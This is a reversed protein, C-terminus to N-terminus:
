LPLRLLTSLSFVHNILMCAVVCKFSKRFVQMIPVYKKTKVRNLLVMVEGVAAVICLSDGIWENENRASAGEAAGQFLDKLSSLVLGFMTVSVGGWELWTVMSGMCRVIIVLFVPHTNCLLSARVLTTFRIGIIWCYLNVSWAIGAILIHVWVPFPLDPVRSFWPVPEHTNRRSWAEIIALPLLFLTMCQCRWSAALCSPVGM